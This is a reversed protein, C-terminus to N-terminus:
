ARRWPADKPGNIYGNKKNRGYFAIQSLRAEHSWPTGYFGEVVGRYPVDPYDKVTCLEIKGQAMMGLLTQAGFFLGQEDAAALVIGRETIHLYYSEAKAPVYKAYKKVCKDGKVGLTLTFPAKSESAVPATGLLRLVDAHLGADSVIKWARPATTVAGEGTRTVEQPVPNVLSLQARM